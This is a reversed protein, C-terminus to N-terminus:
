GEALEFHPMDVLTKFHGGWKLPVGLAEGVALVHGALARFRATDDWDIPYPAIDVAKSPTANHKSSPWRAKSKGDAVAKDQDAKSRHGCLVTIDCPAAVLAAKMVM